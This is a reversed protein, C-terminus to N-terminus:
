SFFSGRSNDARGEAGLHRTPYLIPATGELKVLQFFHMTRVGERRRLAKEFAYDFFCVNWKQISLRNHGPMDAHSQLEAM